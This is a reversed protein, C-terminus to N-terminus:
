VDRINGELNMLKIQASEDEKYVTRYAFDSSAFELSVNVGFRRRLIRPPMGPNFLKDEQYLNIFSDLPVVQTQQKMEKAVGTPRIRLLAKVKPYNDAWGQTYADLFKAKEKGVIVRGSIWLAPALIIIKIVLDILLTDWNVAM